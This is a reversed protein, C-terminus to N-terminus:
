LIIDTGKWWYIIYTVEEGCYLALKIRWLNIQSDEVVIYYSDGTRWLIIETGRWESLNEFYASTSKVLSKKFLIKRFRRLIVNNRKKQNQDQRSFSHFISARNVDKRPLFITMLLSCVALNLFINNIFIKRNLAMFFYNILPMSCAPRTNSVEVKSLIYKNLVEAVIPIHYLTM